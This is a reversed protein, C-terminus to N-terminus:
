SQGKLQQMIQVHRLGSALLRRYDKEDVGEWSLFDRIDYAGEETVPLESAALMQELPYGQEQMPLKILQRRRASEYIAMMIDVTFKANRGAGRHEPGGEIWELLERVQAANTAGGIEIVEDAPMGIDIEQWGGSSGSLLRVGAVDIEMTGDSGYLTFARCTWGDTYLENQISLQVDGEFHVLALSRDEIPVQREYRDTLREFAGMVWRPEPDGLVFRSGDISHTGINALGQAIKNTMLVPNGVAGNRVLERAKEWGATFRRQHGIVLKTGSEECAELMRAADGAGIAMPKECIVGKVGARAAAVVHDAHLGHQTCVSVIEPAAGELMAELSDYQRLQGNEAVYRARAVEVPDTVAIVEIDDTLVYGDYHFQSISGCGVIGATYTAM